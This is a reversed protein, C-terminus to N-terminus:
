GAPLLPLAIGLILPLGVVLSDRSTFSTKDRTVTRIGLGLQSALITVFGGGIVPDPVSALVAGLKPIFASAMIILGCALQVYHSAVRTM